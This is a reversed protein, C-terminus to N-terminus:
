KQHSWQARGTAAGELETSSDGNRPGIKHSEPLDSTGGSVPPM